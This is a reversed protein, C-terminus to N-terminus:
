FRNSPRPIERLYFFGFFIPPEPTFRRDTFKPTGENFIKSSEQSLGSLRVGLFLEFDWFDM